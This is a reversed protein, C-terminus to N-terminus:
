ETKSCTLVVRLVNQGNELTSYHFTRTEVRWQGTMVVVTEGIQPVPVPFEFEFLAGGFGPELARGETDYLDLVFRTM